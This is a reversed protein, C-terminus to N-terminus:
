QDVSRYEIKQQYLNRGWGALKDDEFIVPTFNDDELAYIDYSTRYFWVDVNKGNIAYTENRSPSGMIGLVRGKTQGTELTLMLDNNKKASEMSACGCLLSAIILVSILRM